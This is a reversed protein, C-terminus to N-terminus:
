FPFEGGISFGKIDDGFKYGVRVRNFTIGLLKRPRKLGVSMGFEHVNAIDAHDDPADSINWKPLFHQFRYYAGMDIEREFVVFGLGRRIDLGTELIGFSTDFSSKIQHEAAFRIKNGWRLEWDRNEDLYFRAVSSLGLVALIVDEDSVFDHTYGVHGFPKLAWDPSIPIQYEFGPLATLTVLEDPILEEFWDSGEVKDHGIVVPMHWKFGTETETMKRQTWSFPMRIMTIRRSDIKYTGTGMLAAYAYSVEIDEIDFDVAEQAALIGPLSLLVGLLLRKFKKM